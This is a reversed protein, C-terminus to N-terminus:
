LGSFVGFVVMGWFVTGPSGGSRYVLYAAGCLLMIASIGSSICPALTLFLLSDRFHRVGVTLVLTEGCEPCIPRTLNRLNYNCKPCAHDRGQLFRLLIEPENEAPENM